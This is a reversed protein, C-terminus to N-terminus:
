PPDSRSSGRGPSGRCILSSGGWALAQSTMKTPMQSCASGKRSSPVTMEDVSVAKRLGCVRARKRGRRVAMATGTAPRAPIARGAQSHAETGMVLDRTLAPTGVAAASVKM